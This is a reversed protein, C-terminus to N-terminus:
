VLPLQMTGLKDALAIHARVLNSLYMAVLVDNQNDQMLQEWDDKPFHPVSAVADALARGIVVSGERKGSQRLRVFVLRESPWRRLCTPLCLCLRRALCGTGGLLRAAPERAAGPGPAAAPLM